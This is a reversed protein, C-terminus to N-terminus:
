AADDETETEVAAQSQAVANGFGAEQLKAFEKQRHEDLSGEGNWTADVDTIKMANVAGEPSVKSQRTAAM